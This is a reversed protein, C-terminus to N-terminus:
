LALAVSTATFPEITTFLTDCLCDFKAIGPRALKRSLRRRRLVLFTARGRNLLTPSTSGSVVLLKYTFIFEIAESAVSLQLVEVFCEVWLLLQQHVYADLLFALNGKVGHPFRMYCNNCGSYHLLTVVLSCLSPPGLQFSLPKLTFVLLVGNRHILKQYCSFPQSIKSAINTHNGYVDVFFICNFEVDDKEVIKDIISLACKIVIFM